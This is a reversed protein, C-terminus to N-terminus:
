VELEELKAAGLQRLTTMPGEPAPFALVEARAEMRRQKKAAQRAENADSTGKKRKEKIGIIKAQVKESKIQVEEKSKILERAKLNRLNSALYNTM